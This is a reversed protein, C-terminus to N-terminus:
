SPVHHAEESRGNKILWHPSEPYYMAVVISVAPGINQLFFPFRWAWEGPVCLGTFTMLAALLSGIYAFTQYCSGLISRLRPHAIKQHASPRRSSCHRSWLGHNRLRRVVHRHIYHIHQDCCWSPECCKRHHYVM